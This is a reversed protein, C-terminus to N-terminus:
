AFSLTAATTSEGATRRANPPLERTRPRVSQVPTANM